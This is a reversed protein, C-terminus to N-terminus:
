EGLHLYYFNYLYEGSPVKVLVQRMQEMDYPVEVREYTWKADDYDIVIGRAYPREHCGVSGIDVYLKKGQIDCPEHKHGFFVARCDANAFMEDFKDASPRSIITKFVFKNDRYPGDFFAYHAFMVTQGALTRTVYVPFKSVKQRHQETLTAFVYQKHETSVHSKYRMESQNLAFDRDHNGLILTVDPRSLLIDLCERSNAGINVIDGTHIIEDCGIEDFYDLIAKLAQLNGHIDSIVGIKGMETVEHIQLTINSHQNKSAEVGDIAENLM